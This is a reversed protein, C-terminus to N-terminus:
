ASNATNIVHNHPCRQAKSVVFDRFVQVHAVTKLEEPYVFYTDLSSRIPKASCSVLRNNDDVLYDPLARSGSARSVARVPRPHQQGSTPKGRDPATADAEILWARNQLHSPVQSDSLMIIRHNDLTTSAHAPHRFAQHIGALL